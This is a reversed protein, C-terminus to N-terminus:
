SSTNPFILPYMTNLKSDTLSPYTAATQVLNSHRKAVAEVVTDDVEAAVGM